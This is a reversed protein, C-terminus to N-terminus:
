GEYQGYKENAGSHWGALGDIVAWDHSGFGNFPTVLEACYAGLFGIELWDGAQTELPLKYPGTMLDGSDCTPGALSFDAFPSFSGRNLNRVPHFGPLCRLESLLGHVGDTIFLTQARRLEVRVLVSGAGAVLSRGPESQLRCQPGFRNRHDAFARTIAEGFPQLAPEEGRYQAPFGGGVDLVTITVRAADTIDAATAVAAAYIAPDECQSGVHFTLGTAIGLAAIERLLAVSEQHTAGYKGTMDYVSRNPALGLRVFLTCDAGGETVALIKTLEDQCDLAYSRVGMRYAQEIHHVSKVPNMYACHADADIDRIAQIEAVSAVDFRNLGEEVMISLVSRTTNAKVAYLPFPLHRLAARIQLRLESPYLCYAPQSDAAQIKQAVVALASDGYRASSKMEIHDFIM